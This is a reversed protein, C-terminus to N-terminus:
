SLFNFFSKLISMLIDYFSKSNIQLFGKIDLFYIEKQYIIM